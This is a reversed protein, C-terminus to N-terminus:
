GPRPRKARHRNTMATDIAQDLGAIAELITRGTKEFDDLKNCSITGLAYALDDPTVQKKKENCHAIFEKVTTGLYCLRDGTQMLHENVTEM